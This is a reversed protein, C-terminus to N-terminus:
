KNTAYWKAKSMEENNYDKDMLFLYSHELYMKMEDKYMRCYDSYVMNMTYYVEWFNYKDNEEAYGKELWVKKVEEISWHEGKSGDDNIMKSVYKKAQKETLHKCFINEVNELFEEKSYPAEIYDNTIVLLQEMQNNSLKDIYKKIIEKYLM